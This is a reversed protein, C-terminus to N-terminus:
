KLVGRAVRVLLAIVVLPATFVRLFFRFPGDRHPAFAAVFTLPGPDSSAAEIQGAVVVLENNAARRLTLERENRMYAAGLSSEFWSELSVGREVCVGNGFLRADGLAHPRWSTLGLDVYPDLDRVEYGALGPLLPWARWGVPEAAEDLRLRCRSAALARSVVVPLGAALALACVVRLARRQWLGVLLGDAFM